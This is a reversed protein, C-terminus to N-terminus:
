NSYNYWTLISDLWCSLYAKPSAIQSTLVLTVKMQGAQVALQHSMIWVVTILFIYPRAPVWAGPAVHCIIHPLGRARPLKTAAHQCPCPPKGGARCTRQHGTVLSAAAPASCLTLHRLLPAGFGQVSLKCLCPWPYTTPYGVLSVSASRRWIQLKHSANHQAERSPWEQLHKGPGHLVQGSNEGRGKLLQIGM